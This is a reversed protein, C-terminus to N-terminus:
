SKKGDKSLRRGSKWSNIRMADCKPRDVGNDCAGLNMSNGKAHWRERSGFMRRGSM